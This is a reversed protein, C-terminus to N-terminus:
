VELHLITTWFRKYKEKRLRTYRQSSPHNKAERWLQRKQENTICPRCFCYPCETKDQSQRIVFPDGEPDSEAQTSESKICVDSVNNSHSSGPIIRETRCIERYTWNFHSFVQHNITDLLEESVALSLHIHPNNDM